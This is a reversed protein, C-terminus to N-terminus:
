EEGARVLISELPRGSAILGDVLDLLADLGAPIGAFARRRLARCAEIRRGLEIEQAASLRDIAGIERLYQTAPGRHDSFSTASRTAMRRSPGAARSRSRASVDM